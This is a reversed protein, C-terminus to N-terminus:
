YKGLSVLFQVVVQLAYESYFPLCCIIICLPRVSQSGSVYFVLRVHWHVLVRRRSAVCEWVSRLIFDIGLLVYWIIYLQYTYFIKSGEVAITGAISPKKMPIVNPGVVKQREKVLETTLGDRRMLMDEISHGIIMMGPMFTETVDDFNYRRLRFSFSKDEDVEHIHYRGPINPRNVESFISAFIRDLYKFFTVTLEKIRTVYKAEVAAEKNQKITHKTPAFVAIHTAESLHCRRLFLAEVSAPWKLVMTWTFSVIWTLEFAFLVEVDNSYPYAPGYGRQQAYYFSTVAALLAHFGALTMLVLVYITTGVPTKKYGTQTWLAPEDSGELSSYSSRRRKGGMTSFDHLPVTQGVPCFRQNFACWGFLLVTVVCIWTYFFIHAPTTWGIKEGGHDSGGKHVLRPDSVGCDWAKDYYDTYQLDCEDMQLVTRLCAITNGCPNGACPNEEQPCDQLDEVCKRGSNCLLLPRSSFTLNGDVAQQQQQEGECTLDLPCETIDSVCVAECTTSVPCQFTTDAYDNWGATAPSCCFAVVLLFPFVTQPNCKRRTKFLKPLRRTAPM